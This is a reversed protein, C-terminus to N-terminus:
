ATLAAADPAILAEVLVLDLACSSPCVFRVVRWAQQDVHVASLLGCGPCAVLRQDLLPPAERLAGSDPDAGPLARLNPGDIM